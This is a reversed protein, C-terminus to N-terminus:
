LCTSREQQLQYLWDFAKFFISKPRKCTSTHYGEQRLVSEVDRESTQKMQAFESFTLTDEWTTMNRGFPVIYACGMMKSSDM